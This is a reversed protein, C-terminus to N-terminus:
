QGLTRQSMLSTPPQGRTGVGQNAAGVKNNLNEFQLPQTNQLSNTGTQNGGGVKHIM